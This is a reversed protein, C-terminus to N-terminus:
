HFVRHETPNKSGPKLFRRSSQFGKELFSNSHFPSKWILWRRSDSQASKRRPWEFFQKLIFSRNSNNTYFGFTSGVCSRLANTGIFKSSSLFNSSSLPSLLGKHYCRKQRVRTFLGIFGYIHPFWVLNECILREMQVMESKVLKAM